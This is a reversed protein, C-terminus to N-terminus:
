RMYRVTVAQARVGAPGSLPRVGHAALMEGTYPISTVVLFATMVLAMARLRVSSAIAALPLLWVVYWPWLSGLSAILAFTAWGAGALWDRNRVLQYGVVGLVSGALVALLLPPAGGLGLAWGFLNPVSFATLLQSQGAVNPLSTGFLAFSLLALLVGTAVLGTLVRGCRQRSRVALLMFPLILGATFKVATAAAIAAGASGDRGSLLFAVAAMAPVLMFVDNHFGGVADILFIPNAALFLVVFRPDRGTLKACRGVLWVFAFMLGVTVAKLVWYAIPLPMLGLPYTLATFLQGYPSRWNHWSVLLSVPDSAEAHMVHSYPNLGHLSWLRAYGLYNFLDTARLPPGVLLIALAAVVFVWIARMSLAPAVVLVVGYVVMMGLMLSSFGLSILRESHPLGASLAHLPGAVWTATMAHNWVLRTPGSSAFLVTVVCSALLGALAFHAAIWRPRIRIWSLALRPVLAQARLAVATQPTGADTVHSAFVAPDGCGVEEPAHVSSM